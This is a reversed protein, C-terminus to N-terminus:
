FVQQIQLPNSSSALEIPQHAITNCLKALVTARATRLGKVVAIPQGKKPWLDGVAIALSSHLGEVSEALRKASMSFFTKRKRHPKISTVDCHPCTKSIKTVKPLGQAGVWQGM